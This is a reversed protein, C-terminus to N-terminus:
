TVQLPPPPLYRGVKDTFDASARLATQVELLAKSKLTECHNKTSTDFIKGTIADLKLGREYDHGHLPSPFEDADNKHFRWKYGNGKITKEDLRRSVGSLVEVESEDTEIEFGVVSKVPMYEPLKQLQWLFHAIPDIWEESVTEYTIDLRVISRGNVFHHSGVTKGNM